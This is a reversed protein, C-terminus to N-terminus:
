CSMLHFPVFQFSFAFFHLGTKWIQAFWFKSLHTEKQQRDTLHLSEQPEHTHHFPPLNETPRQNLNRTAYLTLEEANKLHNGTVNGDITATRPQSLSNSLTKSQNTRLIKNITWRNTSFNDTLNTM